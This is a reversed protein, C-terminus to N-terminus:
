NFNSSPMTQQVWINQPTHPIHGEPSLNRQQENVIKKLDIEDKEVADEVEPYDYDM